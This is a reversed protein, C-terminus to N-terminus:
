IIRREELIKEFTEKGGDIPSSKYPLIFDYDMLISVNFYPSLIKGKEIYKEEVEKLQKYDEYDTDYALIVDKVKMKLLYQIHDRTINQGLTALAICNSSGYLSNYLLISKEGEFLVVIHKKEIAVHNEYIGYFTRGTPHNYLIGNDYLPRYKGKAIDKENLFRERVGILNGNYDYNPIVIANRVKDYKISFRQLAEISIGEQIWPMLGVYDFSFKRLIAKDYKKFDEQREFITQFNSNNSNLVQLYRLDDAYDYNIFDEDKAFSTDLNCISIAQKISIDKGRLKYMKQLLTFIDFTEGCETYCHFLKSNKYYYLKPSGGELNHCCTPFIIVDANEDVPEVNFQILIDKITEDTLQERLEKFNIM